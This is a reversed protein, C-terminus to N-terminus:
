QKKARAGVLSDVVAVDKFFLVTPISTIGFLGPVQRSEDVDVKGVLVRGAYETALEDVVPGVAMCPGCWSAWFDVMALGRGQLVLSEFNGDTLAVTNKGAM